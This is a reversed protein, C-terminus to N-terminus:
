MSMPIRESILYGCIRRQTTKKQILGPNMWIILLHLFGNAKVQYFLLKILWRTKYVKKWTTHHFMNSKLLLTIHTNYQTYQIFVNIFEFYIWHFAILVFWHFCYASACQINTSYFTASHSMKNSIQPLLWPIIEPLIYENQNMFHKTLLTWLYKFYFWTAFCLSM